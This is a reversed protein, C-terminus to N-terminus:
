LSQELLLSDDRFVYHNLYCSLVHLILLHIAKICPVAIMITYLDINHLAELFDIINKELKTMSNYGILSRLGSLAIVSAYIDFRDLFTYMLFLNANYQQIIQAVQRQLTILQIPTQLLGSITRPHYLVSAMKPAIFFAGSAAYIKEETRLIGPPDACMKLMIDLINTTNPM